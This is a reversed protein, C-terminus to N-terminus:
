DLAIANREIVSKWRVREKAFVAATDAQSMAPYSQLAQDDLAKIFAPNTTATMLAEHLRHQTAAPTAAPVLMAFSTSVDLGQWGLEALTPVDPIRPHRELSMVALAKVKGAKLFPLATQLVEFSADTQGALLATISQSSGQYPIQQLKIGTTQAFLAGALHTPNGNGASGYSLPAKATKAAKLFEAISNAPFNSNVIVVFPMRSIMGIPTFAKEADYPLKKYLFPNATTAATGAVLAVTGDARAQAVYQAGIISNAGPKNEVIVTSGLPGTLYKAALRTAYDSSGGAPYPVIMHLPQDSAQALAPGSAFVVAVLGVAITALFTRVGGCNSNPIVEFNKNM